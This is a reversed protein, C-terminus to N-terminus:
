KKIERAYAQDHVMIHDGLWGKLFKMVDLTLTLKNARYKNRLEVVEGTLKRHVDHHSALKAYGKARLMNEEFTFHVETYRVLEDLIKGLAQKGQGAAMSAHLENILRVLVKHQTDIQEIGVSYSQNWPFVEIQTATAMSGMDAFHGGSM